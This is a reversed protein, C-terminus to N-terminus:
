CRVLRKEPSIFLGDELSNRRNLATKPREWKLGVGEGM